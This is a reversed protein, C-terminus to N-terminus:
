NKWQIRKLISRKKSILLVCIQIKIKQNLNLYTLRIKIQLIQAVIQQTAKVLSFIMFKILIAILSRLHSLLINEEKRITMM